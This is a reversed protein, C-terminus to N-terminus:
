FFSHEDVVYHGDFKDTRGKRTKVLLVEFDM